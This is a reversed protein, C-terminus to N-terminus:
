RRLLRVLAVFGESVAKILTSVELLPGEIKEQIDRQFDRLNVVMEQLATIGEEVKDTQQRISELISRTEQFIIALDKSLPTIQTRVTEALKEVEGATRRIQILVPIAYFAAVLAIVAIVMVSITILM